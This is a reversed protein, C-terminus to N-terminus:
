WGWPHERYWRTIVYKRGKRVKMAHHLTAPNVSGDPRANNWGLLKGVEPQVIKDVAKFRTAGGAEVANLYVMFTWTRQGAVACFTDFDKSGPDFYDTHAKFEQGTEYRQGQIPEAHRPDIGSLANLREGLVRVAPEADDLDCTESTRFEADGNYNALTSPRRNAEILEILAACEGADLFGRRIFLELKPTPMRQVGPQARLHRATSQDVLTM